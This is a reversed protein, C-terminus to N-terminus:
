HRRRQSDAALAVMCYANIVLADGYNSALQRWSLEARCQQWGGGCSISKLLM